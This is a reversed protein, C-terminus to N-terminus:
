FRIFFPLAMLVVGIIVMLISNSVLYPFVMLAFGALMPMGRQQKKGYIFYGLGVSGFLVSWLMASGDM